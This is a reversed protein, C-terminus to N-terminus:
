EQTHTVDCSAAAFDGLTPTGPTPRSGCTDHAAQRLPLHSEAHLDCPLM